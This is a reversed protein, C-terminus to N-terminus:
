NTQNYSLSVNYTGYIILLVQLYDVQIMFTCQIWYKEIDTKIFINNDKFRVLWM